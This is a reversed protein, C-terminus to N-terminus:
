DTAEPSVRKIQSTTFLNFTWSKISLPWNSEIIKDIKFVEHVFTDLGPYHNRPQNYHYFIPDQIGSNKWKKSSGIKKVLRYALGPDCPILLPIM